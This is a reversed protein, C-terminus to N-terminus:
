ADSTALKKPHWGDLTLRLNCIRPFLIQALIALGAGTEGTKTELAFHCIDRRVGSTVGSAKYNRTNWNQELWLM